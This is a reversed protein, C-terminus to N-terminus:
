SHSDAAVPIALLDTQPTALANGSQWIGLDTCRSSSCILAVMAPSGGHNHRLDFILADSNALFNMAAVATEAGLEAPVFGELELYGVNGELRELKKFGFNMSGMARRMPERMEPTPERRPGVPEAPLVRHSYHVSLHVDHCVARLQDTLTKALAEASTIGDYEKNKMRERIAQEMQRALDPSVYAENLLKLVGDFVETRTAADIVLDPQGPEPLAHGTAPALLSLSLAIVASSMRRRMKLDGQIFCPLM